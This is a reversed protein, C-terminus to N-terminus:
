PTKEVIRTASRREALRRHFRHVAWGSFAVMAAGVGVLLVLRREVFGSGLYITAVAYPLEALGLATLYKWFPYRALGLVYGPVESPVALQFLLIFGFPTRRSLADEYRGLASGARLARVAPRGFTRSITYACVGGLIWAVWLLLMSVPEGWVYVGVPVIVVSSFFALMASLAGFLVFISMGLVPRTRIVSEAAPLLGVLWAHLEASAVLVALAAALLVSVLPWKGLLLGSAKVATSNDESM